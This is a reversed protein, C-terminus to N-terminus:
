GKAALLRALVLDEFALGVAKFLTRGGSPVATGMVLAHLDGRVADFSWGQAKAALLDGAETKCAELDDVFVESGMVAAADAEAMGDKFAGVVDIHQDDRLWAGQILPETSTTAVTIVDARQAATKLDHAVNVTPRVPLGELGGVIARATAEAKAASRGWVSVQAYPRVQLHAWAMWPALGGTGVVLLQSPEPQTRALTAVLHTAMLAPAARWGRTVGLGLALGAAPYWVIQGDILGLLSGVGGLVLYAMASALEIGVARLQPARPGSPAGATGDSGRDM